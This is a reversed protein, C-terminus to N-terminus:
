GNTWIVDIDSSRAAIGDELIRAGESILGYICREIIEQPEIERREIGLQESEKNILTQVEPDPTPNRSGDAYWTCAWVPRKDLGAKNLSCTRSGIFARIM